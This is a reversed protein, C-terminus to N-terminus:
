LRSRLDFASNLLDHLDGVAGVRQRLGEQFLGDRKEAGYSVVANLDANALPVELRQRRVIIGLPPPSNPLEQSSMLELNGRDHHHARMQPLRVVPLM